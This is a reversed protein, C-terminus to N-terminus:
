LPNFSLIAHSSLRFQVDREHPASEGVSEGNGLGKVFNERTPLMLM